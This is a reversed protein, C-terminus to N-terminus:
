RIFLSSLFFIFAMIVSFFLIYLGIAGLTLIAFNGIETGTILRENSQPVPVQAVNAADVPASTDMTLLALDFGETRVRLDFYILTFATM